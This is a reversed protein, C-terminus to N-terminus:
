YSFVSDIPGTEDSRLSIDAYDGSEQDGRRCFWGAPQDSEPSFSCEFGVGELEPVVDEVAVAPMQQPIPLPPRHRAPTPQMVACATLVSATTVILAIGPKM